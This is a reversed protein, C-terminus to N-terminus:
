ARSPLALLAISPNGSPIMSTSATLAVTSAGGAQKRVEVNDDHAGPQAPWDQEALFFPEALLICRFRYDVM